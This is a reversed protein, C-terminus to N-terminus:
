DEGSYISELKKIQEKISHGAAAVEASYDRREYGMEAIAAISDRWLPIEFPLASINDTINNEPMSAAISVICRLGSAQAETLVIGLGEYHSPLVFVDMAQYLGAVDDRKGLFLVRELIELRRAKEEIAAVGSGTGILMLKANPIKGNAEAFMEILFDHNKQYEFRGVHGIVFYGDLGMERRFRERVSQNYAFRQVDIANNLIRIRERDIQPGFLWDAAGRSCACYHTALAPDFRQKQEEHWAIAKAMGAHDAVVGPGMNHAHVIIIPIGIKKAVQECAFSKWYSTHLHVADYGLSLLKEFESLFQSENEEASCSIHHIRCGQAVLRDGFDLSRSLTAFGFRFRSKDVYEWNNLAYQTIGGGLNRM